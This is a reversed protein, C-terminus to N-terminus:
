YKNFFDEILLLIARIVYEEDESFNSYHREIIM